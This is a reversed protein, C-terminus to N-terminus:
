FVRGTITAAGAALKEGERWCLCTEVCMLFVGLLNIGVDGVGEGWCLCVDYYLLVSGTNDNLLEYDSMPLKDKYNLKFEQLCM